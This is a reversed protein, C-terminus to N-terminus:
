WARVLPNLSLEQGGTLMTAHNAMIDFRSSIVVSFEKIWRDSRYVHRPCMQVIGEIGSGAFHQSPM